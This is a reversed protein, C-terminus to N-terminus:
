ARCAVDERVVAEYLRMDLDNAAEIRRLLRASVDSCPITVSRTKRRLPTAASWGGVCREETSVGLVEALYAEFVPMEDRTSVLYNCRVVNARAV